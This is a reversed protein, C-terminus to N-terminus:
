PTEKYHLPRVVQCRTSWPKRVGIAQDRGHYPSCDVVLHEFRDSPRPRVIVGIHGVSKRVGLAYTSRSVLLDGPLVREGGFVPRFFTMPGEADHIASDTNLWSGNLGQYGPQFRSLGACYLAFGICDATLTRYGYSWDACHPASPDDGGLRGSDDLRYAVPAPVFDPPSHDHPESVLTLHALARSVVQDRTLPLIRTTL